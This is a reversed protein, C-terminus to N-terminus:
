WRAGFCSVRDGKGENGRERNRQRRETTDTGRERCYESRQESEEEWRCPGRRGAGQWQSKGLAKQAQGGWCRAGAGERQAGGAAGPDESIDGNGKGDQAKMELPQWMSGM